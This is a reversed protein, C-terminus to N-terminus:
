IECNGRNFHDGLDRYSCSIGLEGCQPEARADHDPICGCFYARGYVGLVVGRWEESRKGCKYEGNNEEM